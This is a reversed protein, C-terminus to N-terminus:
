LDQTQVRLFSASQVEQTQFFLMTLSLYKDDVSIRVGATGKYLPQQKLKMNNRNDLHHYCTHVCALDGLIGHKFCTLFYIVYM